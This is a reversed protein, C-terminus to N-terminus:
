SRREIKSAVYKGHVMEAIDAGTEMRMPVIDILRGQRPQCDFSYKDTYLYSGIRLCRQTDRTKENITSAVYFYRNILSICCLIHAALWTIWDPQLKFCVM